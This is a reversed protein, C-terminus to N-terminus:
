ANEHRHGSTHPGTALSSLRNGLLMMRASGFALGAMGFRAQLRLLTTSM